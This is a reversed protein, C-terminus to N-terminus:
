LFRRIVIIRIINVSENM